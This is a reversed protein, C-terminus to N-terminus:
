PRGSDGHAFASSAPRGRSPAVLLRRITRASALDVACVSLHCRCSSKMPTHRARASLRTNGTSSGDLICQALRIKPVATRKELLRWPCLISLLNATRLEKSHHGTTSREALCELLGLGMGLRERAHRATEM